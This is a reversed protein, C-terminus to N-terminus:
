SPGTLQSALIDIEQEIVDKLDQRDMRLHTSREEMRGSIERFVTLEIKPNATNVQSREPAVLRVTARLGLKGAVTQAHARAPKSM